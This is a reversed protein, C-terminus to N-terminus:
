EKTTPHTLVTVGGTAFNPIDTQAAQGQPSGLAAGLAEASEFDAEFIAIFPSAAGPAEVELTYRAGQLGPLKRALPLHVRQYYDRFHEPDSPQPYLVTLTHTM